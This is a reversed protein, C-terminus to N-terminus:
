SKKLRSKIRKILRKVSRPPLEVKEAINEISNGMIYFNLVQDEMPTRVAEAILVAMEPAPDYRTIHSDDLAQDGVAVGLKRLKAATSRPRHLFYAKLDFGMTRRYVGLRVDVEPCREMIQAFKTLVLETVIFTAEAIAEDIWFM